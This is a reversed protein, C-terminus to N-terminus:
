TPIRLTPIRSTHGDTERITKPFFRRHTMSVVELRQYPSTQHLLELLIPLPPILKQQTDAKIRKTKAEEENVSIGEVMKMWADKVLEPYPMVRM